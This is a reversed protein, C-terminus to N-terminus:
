SYGAAVADLLCWLVDCKTVFAALCREQLERTKAHAIVFDLAEGSDARARPVRSRFYEQVGPDVWPYHKEWAALRKTMIDPSFFETLSSAVAEVLSRERVLQVYGDCAFRVAPLVRVCSQVEAVDLGVGKALRLWLALGGEVPSGPDDGRPPYGDHDHIRRIWSRRFASDESKALILADKIPIRTQYYYRNLTWGQIQARSLEGAHMRVHFPHRDHYRTEGEARLRALFEERSMPAPDTARPDSMEMSVSM